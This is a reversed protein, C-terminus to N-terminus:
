PAKDAECLAGNGGLAAVLHADTVVHSACHIWFGAVPIRGVETLAEPPQNLHRPDAWELHAGIGAATEVSARPGRTPADAIRGVHLELPLWAMFDPTSVITRLFMSMVLSAMSASVSRSTSTPMGSSSVSRLFRSPLSPGMVLAAM